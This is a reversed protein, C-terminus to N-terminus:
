SVAELILRQNLRIDRCAGVLGKVKYGYEKHLTYLDEAVGVVIDETEELTLNNDLLSALRGIESLISTKISKESFFYNLTESKVRKKMIALAQLAYTNNQLGRKTRVEQFVCGTRELRADDFLVPRGRKKKTSHEKM